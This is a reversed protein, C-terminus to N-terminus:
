RLEYNIDMREYNSNRLRHLIGWYSARYGFGYSDVTTLLELTRDGTLDNFEPETASKGEFAKQYDQEKIYVRISWYSQGGGIEFVESVILDLFGDADLDKPEITMLEGPYRAEELVSLESNKVIVVSERDYSPDDYVRLVYSGDPMKVMASAEGASTYGASQVVKFVPSPISSDGCAAGCIIFCLGASVQHIFHKM